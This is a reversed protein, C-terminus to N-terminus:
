RLRDELYRRYIEYFQVMSEIDIWESRSHLNGCIPRSMIVPINHNSLFRADSGGHERRETPRRGLVAECAEFFAPDPSLRNPEASVIPVATVGEIMVEEIRRILDEAQVPHPYRIDLSAGAHSPVRNISRNPTTVSTVACTPHWHDPDNGPPFLAEIRGICEVIQALANQGLWPRAAHCSTGVAELQLQLIGKEEVVVEDISGGDPVMGLKCRLGHENLLAGTGHEGGIEEDTTIALGLPLGPNQLHFYRFLELLIAVIGKMDGTGPGCIRGNSLRSRYTERDPHHVVDVHGFMIVDPERCAEPLAVLSAVGNTQYSRVTVGELSELHNSVWDIARQM